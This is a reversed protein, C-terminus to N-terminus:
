NQLLSIHCQLNQNHVDSREYEFLSISAHYMIKSSEHYNRGRSQDRFTFCRQHYENNAFYVELTSVYCKELFGCTGM